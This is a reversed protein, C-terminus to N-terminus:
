ADRVLRLHRTKEEGPAAKPASRAPAGGDVLDALLQTTQRRRSRRVYLLTTAVSEHGALDALDELSVGQEYGLTLVTHRMSHPVVDEPDALGASRAYDHFLNALDRQALPTGSTTVFLWDPSVGAPHGERAARARLYDDLATEALGLIDATKRHGGKNRYRLVRNGGSVTLVDGDTGCRAHLIAGSRVGTTAMIELIARNRLAAESGLRAARERAYRLLAVLEDYSLARTQPEQDRKRRTALKAPNDDHLRNGILEAYWASVASLRANCTSPSAEGLGGIWDKVDALRAALPDLRHWDCYSLWLSLGHWYTRRTHHSSMHFLWARTTARIGHRDGPDEHGLAPLDAVLDDLLERLREQGPHRTPIPRPRYPELAPDVGSPRVSEPEGEGPQKGAM